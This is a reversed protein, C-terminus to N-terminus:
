GDRRSDTKTWEDEHDDTWGGVMSGSQALCQPYEFSYMQNEAQLPECPAPLHRTFLGNCHPTPSSRLSVGPSPTCVGPFLEPVSSSISGGVPSVGAPGM